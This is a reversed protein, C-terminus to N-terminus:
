TPMVRASRFSYKVQASCRRRFPSNMIDTGERKRRRM